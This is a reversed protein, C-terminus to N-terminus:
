RKVAMRRSLSTLGIGIPLTLLLFFGAVLAFTVYNLDARLEIAESMLAATEAVGIAAAVTTNKILAITVSALPAIAGRIAQPLVVHRLNQTFGLGISRAAEAQGPPVTNIGSRIAECVFAAHYVALGVIAWRVGNDTISTPSNEDALNIGLDYLMVMITFTLILTLPTNRVINVYASGAFRFVAVPSVRMIAIITGLVLAGALSFVALKITLWFAGWVDFQQFLESM